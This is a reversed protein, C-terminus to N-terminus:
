PIPVAQGCLHPARAFECVQHAFLLGGASAHCLLEDHLTRRQYGAALQVRELCLRRLFARLLLTWTHASGLSCAPTDPDSAPESEPESEPESDPESDPESEPESEADNDVQPKARLAAAAAKAAPRKPKHEVSLQGLRGACVVGEVM